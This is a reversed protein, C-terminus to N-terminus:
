FATGVNFTILKTDDGEDKLLAYAVDIRLPGFPSTWNVGAGVSLRPKASNGTFVEKFPQVGTRLIGNATGGNCVGNADPIGVACTTLITGGDAQTISYLQQGSDNFLLPSDLTGDARQTFCNQM